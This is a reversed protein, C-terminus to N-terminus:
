VARAQSRSVEVIGAGVILVTGWIERTGFPEDLLIAASIVGVLVEAMLLMGVRGPSLITAPWITFFSIPYMLLAILLIWGWSDIMPQLAPANDFSGQQMLVLGLSMALSIFMFITVKEIINKAGGQFLKVSAISWCLGSLLAFWDGANRPWPFENEIALVFYLGAFAMLLAALRNITLKERLVFVGIITSWLPSMYFLLLARVIETLNLSLIYLSFAFGALLGPIILSKWCALFHKCRVILIPLFLLSSAGFIIPGTWYANVGAEEIARVPLWFLGWLSAAIAVAISPWLDSKPTQM